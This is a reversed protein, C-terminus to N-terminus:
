YTKGVAFGCHWLLRNLLRLGIGVRRATGLNVDWLDGMGCIAYGMGLNWEFKGGWRWQLDMGNGNGM